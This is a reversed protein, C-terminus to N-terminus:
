RILSFTRENDHYKVWGNYENVRNNKWYFTQQTPVDSLVDQNLNLTPNGVSYYSSRSYNQTNNRGYASM